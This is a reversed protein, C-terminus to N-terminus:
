SSWLGKPCSVGRFLVKVPMYCGCERCVSVDSLAPCQSCTGLRSAILDGRSEREPVSGAGGAQAPDPGAVSTRSSQEM